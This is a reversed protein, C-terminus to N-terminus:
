GFGKGLELAPVLVEAAVCEHCASAGPRMLADLAEMTGLEKGGVTAHRCVADHVVTGGRRQPDPRVVWGSPKPLPLADLRRHTPVISLDVGDIPQLQKDTVWVSYEAPEVGDETAVWSPVGIRYRWPHRGTTQLREYLRVQVAQEDPLVLTILAFPQSPSAAM